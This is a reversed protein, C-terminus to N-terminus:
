GKYNGLSQVITVGDYYSDGSIEVHCIGCRQSVSYFAYKVVFLGFMRPEM